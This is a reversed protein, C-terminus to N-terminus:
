VVNSELEEIRKQLKKMVCSATKHESRWVWMTIAYCWTVLAGSASIITERSIFGRRTAFCFGFAGGIGALLASSFVVMNRVKTPASGKLRALYKKEKETFEM